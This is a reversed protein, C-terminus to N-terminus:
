DESKAAMPMLRAIEDKYPLLVEKLPRELAGVLQEGNRWIAYLTIGEVAGELFGIRRLLQDRDSMTANSM